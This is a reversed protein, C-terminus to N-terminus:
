RPGVTVTVEFTQGLDGSPGRYELRLTTTGASQATFFWRDVGGSGVTGPLVPSPTYVDGDNTLVAEDLEAVSWTFGTTPNSALVIVLHDGVKLDVPKGNDDAKLIVTGFLQCGGALLLVGAGFVLISKTVISNM